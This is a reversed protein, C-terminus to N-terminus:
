ELERQSRTVKTTPCGNRSRYRPGDRPPAIRQLQVRGIEDLVRWCTAASAMPGFVEDQHRLVDIDCIAKQLL